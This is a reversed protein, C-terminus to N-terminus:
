YPRIKNIFYSHSSLNTKWEGSIRRLVINQGNIFEDLQYFGTDFINSKVIKLPIKTDPDGGIEDLVIPCVPPDDIIPADGVLISSNGITNSVKESWFRNM